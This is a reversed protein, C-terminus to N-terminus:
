KQEKILRTTWYAALSPYTEMVKSQAQGKRVWVYLTKGANRDGILHNLIMRTHPRRKFQM